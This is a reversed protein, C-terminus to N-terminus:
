LGYYRRKLVLKLLMELTFIATSTKDIAGLTQAKFSGSVVSGDDFCMSVCVTVIVGLIFVEFAGSLTVAVAFRRFRSNEGFLWLSKGVCSGGV